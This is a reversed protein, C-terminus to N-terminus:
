SPIFCTATYSLHYLLPSMLRADPTRIGGGSGIGIVIWRAHHLFCAFFAGPFLPFHFLVACCRTNLFYGPYLGM